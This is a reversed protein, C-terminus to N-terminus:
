DKYLDMQIYTEELDLEKEIKRLVEESVEENKRIRNILSRELQVLKLQAELFENFIRTPTSVKNESGAKPLHSKLLMGNRIQYNKFLLKKNPRSVDLNKLIHQKIHAMLKKRVLYEEALISYKPMRMWKILFPLPLGQFILTFVIFSIHEALL